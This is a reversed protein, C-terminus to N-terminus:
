ARFLLNGERHAVFHSFGKLGVTGKPPIQGLEGTFYQLTLSADAEDRGVVM